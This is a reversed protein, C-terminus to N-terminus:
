TPDYNVIINHETLASVDGIDNGYANVMVLHYCNALPNLTTLNNYDMYVYRLEQLDTLPNLSVIKNHSCDLTSLACDKPWIPLHALDNYSCDLTVLNVLTKFSNIDAIANNSLNLEQLGTCKSLIKVNTLENHDADLHTLVPFTDIGELTTLLNNGVNLWELSPCQALPLISTVSNYSIDLKKLSTLATLADLATVANHQLYVEELTTMPILPDLNRLTNNSLDLVKLNMAGALDAITSLSCRSLSLKELAPLGAITKLETSPFRCGTLDLEKLMSLTSLATLSDLRHDQITLKELYPLLALDTLVQADQPVTFETIEWLRDTMLTEDEAIGLQERMAMEMAPDAFSAEEIVGGVTYSVVTLPSVLGSPAVHLAYIITEGGPLTIPGTCPADQVSPYERDTTCYLTAGSDAFEVPIYQNYYGPEPTPVPAAPRLADIEQRISPDAISELMAVADLLKDQEVFTKCLAIYLDATPSDSIAHTLTYEAKTYNGDAKYQNALEIAVDEDKGTYDYALDYLVAAFDANGRGDFHRAQSILMDRTFARDYVFLYWCISLLIGIAMLVPVFGKLVRKM